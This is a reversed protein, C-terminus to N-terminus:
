GEVINKIEKTMKNAKETVSGIHDFYNYQWLSIKDYLELMYNRYDKYMQRMAKKRAIEKAANSDFKDNDKLRAVGKYTKKIKDPVIGYMKEYVNQANIIWDDTVEPTITCVVTTDNTHFKVNNKSVKFGM